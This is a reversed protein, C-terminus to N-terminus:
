IGAVYKLASIYSNKEREDTMHVAKEMYCQERCM